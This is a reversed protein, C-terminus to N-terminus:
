EGLEGLFEPWFTINADAASMDLVYRFDQVGRLDIMSGGYGLETTDIVFYGAQPTRVGDSQVLENLAKKREWINYTDRELRIEDINSSKIFCRNLFQAKLNNFPLDSIQLEGAGAASRKHPVVHLVTGPGGARKTSVVADITLKPASAGADIDIEVHFAKIARGTEPHRSDTNVLTEEEGSRQKLGLRDFHIMLVGNAAALGNFQNMADRDTASYRHILTENAKIRIETMQALTVGTYTIYLRHYARGIPLKALATGGPSVGEPTPMPLTLRESM